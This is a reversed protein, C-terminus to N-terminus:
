ILGRNKLTDYIATVQYETTAYKPAYRLGDEIAIRFDEQRKQADRIIANRMDVASRPETM